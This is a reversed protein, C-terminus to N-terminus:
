HRPGGRLGLAQAYLRLISSLEKGQPASSTNGEEVARIMDESLGTAQAIEKRSLGRNERILKFYEGKYYDEAVNQGSEDVRGAVRIKQANNQSKPLLFSKIKGWVSKKESADEIELKATSKRFYAKMGHEPRFPLVQVDYAKRRSPDSLTQFAAEIRELLIDREEKSLAGYSALAEGHYTALARVYAREVEEPSADLPLNLLDYFDM